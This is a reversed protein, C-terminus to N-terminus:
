ETLEGPKTCFQIADPVKVDLYDSEKNRVVWIYRYEAQHAFSKDKLFLPYHAMRSVIFDDLMAKNKFRNVDIYGLDQEVIKMHQYLCPGEFSAVLGPIQRAVAM